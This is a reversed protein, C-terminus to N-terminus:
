ETSVAAAELKKRTMKQLDSEIPSAMKQEEQQVEETSATLADDFGRKNAGAKIGFGSQKREPLDLRIPLYHPFPCRACTQIQIKKM